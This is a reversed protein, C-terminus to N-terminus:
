NMASINFHNVCPTKPTFVVAVPIASGAASCLQTTAGTISIHAGSMTPSSVWWNNTSQFNGQGVIVDKCTLVRNGMTFVLDGRVAFNLQKPYTGASDCALTQGTKAKGKFWDAVGKSKKRGALVNIVIQGNEVRTTVGSYPQKPTISVGDDKAVHFTAGQLAPGDFYVKNIHEKAALCQGSAATMAAVISIQIANRKM